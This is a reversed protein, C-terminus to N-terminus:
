ATERAGLAQRLLGIVNLIRFLLKIWFFVLLWFVPLAVGWALGALASGDRPATAGGAGADSPAFHLLVILDLLTGTSLLLFHFMISVAEDAAGHQGLFTSLRRLFVLFLLFGALLCAPCLLVLGLDAGGAALGVPSAEGDARFLALAPFVVACGYVALALLIPPRAETESPVRSCLAAGAIGLLPALFVLAATALLLVTEVSGLAAGVLPGLVAVALSALITVIMAAHCALGLSTTGMQQRM